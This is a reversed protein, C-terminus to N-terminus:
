PVGGQGGPLTPRVEVRGHAAQAREAEARQAALGALQRFLERSSEGDADRVISDLEQKERALRRKRLELLKIDLEARLRDHPQDAYEAM